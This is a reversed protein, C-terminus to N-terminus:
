PKYQQLIKEAISSASTTKITAQIHKNFEEVTKGAQKMEEELLALNNADELIQLEISDKEAAPKPQELLSCVADAVVDKAKLRSLIERPVSTDITDTLKDTSHRGIDQLYAACLLVPLNAGEIKGITEAHRAVRTAHGIRHFDNKFYRKMEVAVKDKLLNDQSGIFEEPLTGLCQEAYQCYAACGFDMRPNVFRNGCNHCRRNTDDKYFEVPKGCKPCEVEYIAGESWYQTDQGPCKM